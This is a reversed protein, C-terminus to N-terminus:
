AGLASGVTTLEAAARQPPAPQRDLDPHQAPVAEPLRVLEPSPDIGLQDRLQERLWTDAALAEM